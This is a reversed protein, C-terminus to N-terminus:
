DEICAIAGGDQVVNDNFVSHGVELIGGLVEISGGTTTLANGSTFTMGDLRVTDGEETLAVVIHRAGLVTLLCREGHAM